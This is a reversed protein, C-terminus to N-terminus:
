GSELVNVTMMEDGMDSSISAKYELMIRVNKKMGNSKWTALDANPDSFLKNLLLYV